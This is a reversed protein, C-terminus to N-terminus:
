VKHVTGSEPVNLESGQATKQTEGDYLYPYDLHKFSARIKMEELSDTAFEL